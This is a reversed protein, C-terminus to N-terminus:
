VWVGGTMTMWPHSADRQAHKLVTKLLGDPTDLKDLAFREDVTMREPKGARVSELEIWGIPGCGWSRCRVCNVNALCGDARLWKGLMKRLDVPLSDPITLSRVNALLQWQEPAAASYCKQFTNADNPAGQFHALRDALDRQMLKHQEHLDTMRKVCHMHLRGSTASLAALADVSCALTVEHLLSREDDLQADCLMDLLGHRGDAHGDSTKM